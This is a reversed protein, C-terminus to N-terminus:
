VRLWKLAEFDDELLSISLNRQTDYSLDLSKYGLLKMVSKCYHEILTIEYPHVKWRWRVAGESSDQRWPAAQRESETKPNHSALYLWKSLSDDMPLDAFELLGPLLKSPNLALDEYRLIKVRKKWRLPMSKIINLNHETNRCNEYSFKRSEALGIRDKDRYFNVAKSSPIIGRPDRVLFLIKCDFDSSAECVSILQEINKNPMRGMLAKVVTMSYKKVCVEELMKQDFPDPCADQLNWRPDSTNYKCFPPSSLAISPQTERTNRRMVFRYYHHLDDAHKPSVFNCQFVGRMWEWSKEAYDEDFPDLKGHLREVTQYPEFLYFVSPHHNFITGTFSSGSRGHAVIILNQRRKSEASTRRKLSETEQGHSELQSFPKLQMNNDISARKEIQPMTIYVSFFM